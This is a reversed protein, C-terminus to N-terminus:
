AGDTHPQPWKPQQLEGRPNLSVTNHHQRHKINRHEHDTKLSMTQFGRARKQRWRGCDTGETVDEECLTLDMM